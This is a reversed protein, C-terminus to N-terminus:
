GEYWDREGNIYEALHPLQSVLYPLPVWFWRRPRTDDENPQFRAFERKSFALGAAEFQPSYVVCVLMHGEPAPWVPSPGVERTEPSEKLLREAKGHGPDPLNYIYFGM